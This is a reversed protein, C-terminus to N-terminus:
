KVKKYSYTRNNPFTIFLENGKISYNCSSEMPFEVPPDYPYNSSECIFNIISNNCTYIGSETVNLPEIIEGSVGVRISFGNFIKTYENNETFIFQDKWDLNNDTGSDEWTGILPNTNDMGGNDCSVLIIAFVTIISLVKRM